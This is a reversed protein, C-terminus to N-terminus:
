RTYGKRDKREIKDLSKKRKKMAPLSKRCRKLHLVGTFHVFGYKNFFIMQEKTFTTGLKFKTYNKLSKDMVRNKHILDFRLYLFFQYDIESNEVNLQQCNRFIISSKLHWNRKDKYDM